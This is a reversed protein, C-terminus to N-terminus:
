VEEKKWTGSIQFFGYDVTEFELKPVYLATHPRGEGKKPWARKKKGFKRKEKEKESRSRNRPKECCSGKSPKEVKTQSRATKKNLLELIMM